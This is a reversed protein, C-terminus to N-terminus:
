VNNLKTVLGVRVSQDFASFACLGQKDMSWDFACVPQEAVTAKQLLEVTGPVGVDHKNDADKQVRKSPYNYKYLSLNGNGGSTLFIDRNQPL